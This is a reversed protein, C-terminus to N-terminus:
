LRRLAIRQARRNARVVGRYGRTGYWVPRLFPHPFTGQEGITRAIAEALATRSDYEDSTLNKAIVWALIPDLPPRPSPAKYQDHDPQTDRRGRQGTGHELYKGWEPVHVHRSVFADGGAYADEKIDTVLVRRALSENARITAQVERRITGMADTTQREHQDALEDRMDSVRSAMEGFDTTM